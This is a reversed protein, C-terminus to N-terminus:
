NTPALVFHDVSVSGHLVLLGIGGGPYQSDTAQVVEEGDIFGTITNGIAAVRLEYAKDLAWEFSASALVIRRDDLAKVVAVRKEPMFVVSYYRNVGRVRIAVGAKKGLHVMLKVATVSYNTWDRTGTTILGEDRAHAISFSSQMSKQFTNANDIWAERWFDNKRKWFERPHNRPRRLVFDPEGTWGLRDLWISGDIQTGAEATSVDLGLQQIPQSDMNDPLKWELVHESGPQITTPPGYYADLADTHTCAKIMLRVIVAGTISKEARITAKVTQGPYVLPSATLEYFRGGGEPVRCTQTLVEVAGAASTLGRLRIALGSRRENDIAQEVKALAPFAAQDKYAVRFGQVSGPLTFYFQAGDKPPELLDQGALQRGLNTIEYTIRSANNIGYGGDASSIFAQDAIPGRWDPGDAYANLGHMIGLICGINGSNSDTDWGSTNIIQMALHFSHSAYVLTLTLIGNNPIIHCFGPYLHYGYKDEIRQRTKHWDGDTKAWERIEQTQIAILSDAPIFKLGTDFLHDIDKSLFAEAEMAAFLVAAHIAEGDHSVSGAEKALKAALAPNGPSVLAWGDIFIRAGIQEAITKGNTEIAGSLPAPIGEKMNVFATEETLVGYGLWALTSHNQIINNLWSKGIEEATIDQKPGHEHLARPFIVTASIDDDVVILPVGVQDHVYYEIPGIEAMIRQYTWMEVPRGVYVGIMKGLVAAYVRELYDTPLTTM